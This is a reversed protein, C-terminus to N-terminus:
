YGTRWGAGSAAAWNSLTTCTTAQTSSLGVYKLTKISSYSAANALSALINNLSTNSLSSCGFFMGSFETGSSTDLQPITTLSSCESFMYFFSAGKSTDLQPVTTLNSCGSFMYSFSTVSNNVTFMPCEIINSYALASTLNTRSELMDVLTDKGGSVSVPNDIIAM